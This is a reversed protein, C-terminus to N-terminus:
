RVEKITDLMMKVLVVAGDDPDHFIRTGEDVNYVCKSPDDPCEGVNVASRAMIPQGNILITVTIM